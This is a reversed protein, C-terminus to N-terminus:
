AARDLARRTQSLVWASDSTVQDYTFQMPVFGELILANLRAADRGLQDSTRHWRYGLLEVVVPTGRFRCDVRVLTDRTRSLVQQTVPRPLGASACLELFRREM